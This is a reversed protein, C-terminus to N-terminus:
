NQKELAARIMSLVMKQQEEPVSRFLALLAQEGEDPARDEEFGNQEILDSKKIGFYDALMEVKDMRPYKKGCVWDSVTYYSIGLAQSIDRRTKGQIEMYKRLNRSFIDKNEM